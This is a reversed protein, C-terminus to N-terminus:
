KEIPFVAQERSCFAPTKDPSPVECETQRTKINREPSKESPESHCVFRKATYFIAANDFIM